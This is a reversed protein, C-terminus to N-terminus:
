NMLFNSPSVEMRLFYWPNFNIILPKQEPKNLIFEKALNIISTKGSGWKGFLGVVLSEKGDWESISKGLHFSFNKRGLFDETNNEIAKDNIFM